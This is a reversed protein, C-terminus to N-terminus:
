STGPAPRRAAGISSVVRSPSCTNPAIPQAVHWTGASVVPGLAFGSKSRLGTGSKESRSSCSTPVPSPMWCPRPRAPPSGCAPATPGATGGAAAARRSPPSSRRRSGAARRRPRGRAALTRAPVGSSRAASSANRRDSYRDLFRRDGEGSRQTETLTRECVGRDRRDAGLTPRSCDDPAADRACVRNRFGFGYSVLCCRVGARRATELDIPSDGVLLTDRAAASRRTMMAHLGAPDPKRSVPRRRRGGRRLCRAHRAGRPHARDARRPKNTLVTLRASRRAGASRRRRHRRLRRTHNLLRADYIELFRQLAAPASAAARRGRLARRVLLAAGEGVM